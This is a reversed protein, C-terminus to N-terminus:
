GQEDHGLLLSDGGAAGQLLTCDSAANRWSGPRRPVPFWEALVVTSGLVVPKLFQLVIKLM